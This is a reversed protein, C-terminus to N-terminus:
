ARHEDLGKPGLPRFASRFPSRLTSAHGKSRTEEVAHCAERHARAVRPEQREDDREGRQGARARGRGGGCGRGCGVDDREIGLGFSRDRAHEVVEVVGGRVGVLLPVELMEGGVGHKEAGVRGLAPVDGREAGVGMRVERLPLPPGVARDRPM